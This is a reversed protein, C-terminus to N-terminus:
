KKFLNKFMKMTKESDKISKNVTDSINSNRPNDLHYQKAWKRFHKNIYANLEVPDKYENYIQKLNLPDNIAISHNDIYEFMDLVKNNNMIQFSYTDHICHIDIDMYYQMNFVRSGGLGVYSCMSIDITKITELMIEIENFIIKNNNFYLTDYEKWENIVEENFSIKIKRRQTYEKIKDNIDELEIKEKEIYKKKADLAERLSLKGDNILKIDDISLDMSRLLQIHKLVDIDDQSYNRYNNSDRNPKIFGEKEYYILTQKTIGLLQEVEKTTM